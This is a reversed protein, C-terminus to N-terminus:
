SAATGRGGVTGVVIGGGVRGEERLEGREGRCPKKKVELTGEKGDKGLKRATEL